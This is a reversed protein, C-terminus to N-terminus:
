RVLTIPQTRVQGDAELRVLYTGSPLRAGDLLAEHPGAGVEGDVLRAVERGLVDFVSLRAHAARPLAFRLTTAIGFPNPAAGHLVLVAPLGGEAAAAVDEGSADTAQVQVARSFESTGRYGTLTAGDIPTATVTVWQGVPFQAAPRTLNVTRKGSGNTTPTASTRFTQGEGFGSPDAAPSTFVEVRYQQNPLAKLRFTIRANTGDNTVSVRTPFNTLENAGGDADNPDNPTVGNPALYM